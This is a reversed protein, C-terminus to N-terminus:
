LIQSPSRPTQLQLQSGQSWVEEQRDRAWQLCSPWRLFFFLTLGNLHVSWKQSSPQANGGRGRRDGPGKV